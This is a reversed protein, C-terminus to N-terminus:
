DQSVTAAEPEQDEVRLRWIKDPSELRDLYLVGDLHDNEHQFAHAVLDSARFRIPRGDTNQGKITVLTARKVLGRYGPVSLCGEELEEEGRTRIIEPNM